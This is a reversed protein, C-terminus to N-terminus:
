GMPRTSSTARVRPEKRPVVRGIPHSVFQISSTPASSLRRASMYGRDDLYQFLKRSLVPISAGLAQALILVGVLSAGNNGDRSNPRAALRDEARVFALRFLRHFWSAYRGGLCYFALHLRLIWSGVTLADIQQSSATPSLADNAITHPGWDDAVSVSAVIQRALGLCKLWLSLESAAAPPSSPANAGARTPSRGRRRDSSRNLMEQRQQEFIRRRDSGRLSEIRQHQDTRSLGTTPPPLQLLYWQSLASAVFSAAARWTGGAPTTEFELGCAEMGLTGKGGKRWVVVATWLSAVLSSISSSSVSSVSSLVSGDSSRGYDSPDEEPDSALVDEV